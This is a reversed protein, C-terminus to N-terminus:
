RLEPEGMWDAEELGLIEEKQVEEVKTHGSGPNPVEVEGLKRREKRGERVDKAFLQVGRVHTDKGNQHNECIKIQVIMCKLVGGAYFTGDLGDSIPGAGELSIDVWGSPSDGTWEAFETLDYMGTGALFVMRTPTYSEDLEFDLYVRLKVISVLKFFHINLLHPQPGDSQWFQSISPSRLAAVGCGPKCTSVTWSALPSIERLGVLSSDPLDLAATDNETGSELDDEPMGEAEQLAPPPGSAINDMERSCAETLSLHLIAAILKFDTVHLLIFPSVRERRIYHDIRRLRATFQEFPGVNPRTSENLDIRRLDIEGTPSYLIPQTSSKHDFDHDGRIFLLLLPLKDIIDVTMRQSTVETINESNPWKM